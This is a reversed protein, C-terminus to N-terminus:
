FEQGVASWCHPKSSVGLIQGLWMKGKKILKGCPLSFPWKRGQDKFFFGIYKLLNMYSTLTRSPRLGHITAATPNKM